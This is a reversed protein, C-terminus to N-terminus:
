PEDLNLGVRRFLPDTVQRLSRRSSRARWREILWRRGGPDWLCRVTVMAGLESFQCPGIHMPMAPIKVGRPVPEGGQWAARLRAWRSLRLRRDNAQRIAEAADVVEQRAHTALEFQAQLAEIRERLADGRAREAATAARPGTWAAPSYLSESSRSPADKSAITKGGRL